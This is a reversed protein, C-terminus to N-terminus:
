LTNDDLTTRAKILNTSTHVSKNNTLQTTILLLALHLPKSCPDLSNQVGPADQTYMKLNGQRLCRFPSTPRWPGSLCLRTIDYYM